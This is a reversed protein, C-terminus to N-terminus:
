RASPALNASEAFGVFGKKSPWDYKYVTYWARLFNVGIVASSPDGGPMVASMCGSLNGDADFTKQTWLYNPIAYPKRDFVFTLDPLDAVAECGGTINFFGFDPLYEVGKLGKHIAVADDEGLLIVTTGSDIIGGTADLAVRRDGVRIEDLNVMWYAKMIVPHYTINGEYRLPDAYGFTLIGAPEEEPNSSLWITFLDQDLVKSKVLNFFFPIAEMESLQPFGLGVLGDCSAGVFDDSAEYVGGFGQNAVMLAPTGMSMTDLASDGIVEGTGYRIRFPEGTSTYTTSALSNFRRHVQCSPHRCQKLPLWTDSSGTDFCGTFNRPPTGVSFNGYYAVNSWRREHIPDLYSRRYLLVDSRVANVNKSRWLATLFLVWVLSVM